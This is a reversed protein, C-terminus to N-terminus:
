FRPRFDTTPKTNARANARARRRGQIEAYGTLDLAAYEGAEIIHSYENKEPLDGYRETKAGMIRPFRFGFNLANRVMKLTPCVLLVPKGPGIMQMMPQRLAERRALLKNTAAPRFKIESHKSVISIWLDDDSDTTDDPYAASPDCIGRLEMGPFRAACYQNLRRGFERAGIDFCPLEGIWRVQGEPDKQFFAAAPTRGADAGVTVPIGDIPEIPRKAVHVAEDFEPYIPKGARSYGWKNDVMRRVWWDPQGVIMDDYYTAPLNQTNEADPERGGPQVFFDFEPPKNVVFWDHLVHDFDPANFDIWMGYWSPGGHVKPPYRGLRGRGYGIVEPDVMDAENIYAGTIEFGKFVDEAAQDGIAVFLIETEVRTGDALPLTISHVAPEGSAGGKWEGFERPVWMNWSKITTRELNRYTDRVVLWRTRRVGDVPSPAQQVALLPIQMLCCITKGSGQPGMIARMRKRSQWFARLTKDNAGPKYDLRVASM